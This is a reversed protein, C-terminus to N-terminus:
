TWRMTRATVVMSGSTWATMKVKASKAAVADRRFTNVTTMNLTVATGDVPTVQVPNYTAGDASIQLQATAVFTGSVQVLIDEAENDALNFTMEDNLAGLTKTADV